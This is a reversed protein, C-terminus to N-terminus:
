AHRKGRGGKKIKTNVIMGTIAINMETLKNRIRGLEYELYAKKEETKEMAIEKMLKRSICRLIDREQELRIREMESPSLWKTENLGVFSEMVITNEM